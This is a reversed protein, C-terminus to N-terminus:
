YLKLVIFVNTLIVEFYLKFYHLVERAIDDGEDKLIYQM